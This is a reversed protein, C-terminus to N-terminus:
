AATARVQLWRFPGVAPGDLPGAHAEGLVGSVLVLLVLALLGVILVAAVFWHPLGPRFRPSSVARM